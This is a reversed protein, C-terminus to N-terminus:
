RMPVLVLRGILRDDEHSLRSEIRPAERGAARDIFTDFEDEAHAMALSPISPLLRAELRDAIASAVHSALINGVEMLASEVIPPELGGTEIGVVRRVLLDSAERSFLVGIIADLCGEFEFFVGTAQLDRGGSPGNGVGSLVTPDAVRVPRGVLQAFAEGAQRAGACALEVLRDQDSKSFEDVIM